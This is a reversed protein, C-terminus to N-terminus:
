IQRLLWLCFDLESSPALMWYGLMGICVVVVERMCASIIFALLYPEYVLIKLIFNLDSIPM